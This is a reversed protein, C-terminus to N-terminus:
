DSIQSTALVVEQMIIIWAPFTPASVHQAAARFAAIVNQCLSINRKLVKIVVDEM